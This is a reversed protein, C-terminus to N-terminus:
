GVNKWYTSIPVEGGVTIEPIRMTPQADTVPAGQGDKGCTGTAFGLDSGVRDIVQLVKPGNGVLTAGRIPEGLKGDRILYGETVAFVFDGTVTNVQGGGMSKVYVGWKTDRLIQEPDDKGPAIYTNTMRVIPKHRFTERRGNGTAPLDFKMASIRDVMYGKLVGNEILVNRQSPTGEDDFTYSGRREPMTGDDLVSILSSAVQKGVQNQYVSLGNCALDAELGHGVAEHIMTGGAEAALVVPMSGSPAPVATLLVKVRKAAEAGISEPPNKAFFEIGVFGGDTEYASEVRPEGESRTEGVVEVAVQLYTKEDRSVLGDSNVVLIKRLSDLVIASIQRADALEKRAGKEARSALAVKEKLTISRPSEKVKYNAIERSKPETKRWEVKTSASKAGGTVAASLAAALSELASQSLDTTYGYVSRGDFLIRLGAGRDRGDVIRDVKGDEFFVRSSETDEFFLEALAGGNRLATALVKELDVGDALGFSKQSELLTSKSSM